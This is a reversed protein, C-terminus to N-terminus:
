APENPEVAEPSSEDDVSRGPALPDVPEDPHEPPPTPDPEPTSV